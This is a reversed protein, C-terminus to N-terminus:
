AKPKRTTRRRPGLESVAAPAPEAAVDAAPAPAPKSPPTTGKDAEALASHVRNVSDRTAKAQSTTVISVEAARAAVEGTIATVAEEIRTRIELAIEEARQEAAAVSHTGRLRDVLRLAALALVAVVSVAAVIYDLPNL